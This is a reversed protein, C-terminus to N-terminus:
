FALYFPVCEEINAAFPKLSLENYLYLFHSVSFTMAHYEVLRSNQRAMPCGRENSRERAGILASASIEPSAERRDRIEGSGSKRELGGWNQPWKGEGEKLEQKCKM